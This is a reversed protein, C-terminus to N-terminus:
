RGKGYGFWDNLNAYLMLGLLLVMGVIQAYELFKTNPKRGSIMEYLTFMVHGGDLAPIPLLNMFALAISFFATIRWFSEWDWENSPFVSAMARFGGVAKYGGTKPNLIAKFQNLYDKLQQGAMRVGAPFAQFFSYKKEVNKVIGMSDLSNGSALPVFGLKGDITVPANIVVPADNRLVNVNVRGGKRAALAGTLQDYFPTAENDIGVIHDGTRIGAKYASSTDPVQFVYVPFRPSILLQKKKVKEVLQGIFDDPLTINLTSSNRQITVTKALLVRKMVDDFYEVPQGDIAVIKDGNKFGKEILLSDNIQIGYKLSNNYTKTEGWVMLIGAYIIFALLVNIIIGGLMIILRQWAPKSRFEWPEAPQALQDKDMSEDIM